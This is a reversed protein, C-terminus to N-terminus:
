RKLKKKMGTALNNNYKVVESNYDLIKVDLEDMMTARNVLSEIAFKYEICSEDTIIVPDEKDLVISYVLLSSLMCALAYYVTDHVKM